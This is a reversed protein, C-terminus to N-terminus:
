ALSAKFLWARTQVTQEYKGMEFNLIKLGNYVLPSKWEQM